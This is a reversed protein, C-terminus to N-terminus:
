GGWAVGPTHVTGAGERNGGYRCTASVRSGDVPHYLKPDFDLRGTPISFEQDWGSWAPKSTSTFTCRMPEPWESDVRLKVWLCGQLDLCQQNDDQTCRPADLDSCYAGPVVTVTPEPPHGSAGFANATDTGREPMAPDSLTFTASLEKFYGLTFTFERTFDDDVPLDVVRTTQGPATVTLRATNGNTSGKVVFTVDQGSAIPTVSALHGPLPGHTRLSRTTSRSCAGSAENENCVMLAVQYTVGNRPVNFAVTQQGGTASINVAPRDDLLLYTTTVKGRSDPVTFSAEARQNQGTPRLSWAGWAAPRGVNTISVGNGTGSTRGELNAARVAYQHAVGDYDVRQDCTLTTVQTCGALPAGNHLVTYTTPGQGEPLTSAWSIRNVTWDDGRQLDVVSVRKPTAPTGLPWFPASQRFDGSGAANRAVVSFQYSRNNDLNSVVAGAVGPTSMQGGPWVVQYQTIASTATTPPDWKLEILRSDRRVMRINSVRGPRSDVSLSVSRESWSSWGVRNRARVQFVYRSGDPELGGFTCTTSACRRTRGSGIERLEYGTLPSGNSAPPSWRLTVARGSISPTGLPRSPTDPTGGVTVEVLGEVRRASTTSDAVDSVVYRFVSRGNSSRGSTFTLTGTGVGSARVSSGSVRTVQVLTPVPDPVGARLHAALNFSRTTGPRMEPVEIPLLGPSPARVARIRLLGPDSGDASVSLVAEGDASSPAAVELVQGDNRTVDLGPANSDWTGRYALRQADGPVPTFTHCLATVDIQVSAGAAVDIPEEPCSLTPRARGVQVPVSVVTSAGPAGSADPASVEALLAGPGEYGDRASIKVSTESDAAAQADVQGRPSAWIRTSDPVQVEGGSPSTVHDRLDVTRTQGTRLRVLADAGVRPLGAGTAPVYLSATTVAGDADRVEFPVVRPHTARDVVVRSGEVVARGDPDLVRTVQLDETRGDPDWAGALVDVAVRESDDSAGFADEVVPPLAAGETARVELTALTSDIGNGLRYVVTAPPADPSDPAPVSVLGTEEDLTVGRPADVLEVRVRDGPTVHDNAMPNVRVTRGPAVEVSDNVALPPQPSPAPAVVVRVTATSSAGRDDTVQVRFTDTGASGPYAQYVITNAGFQVVRGLAPASDLATISVGDGDPDVGAGPLRLEVQAGAPTRGEVTPAHPPNNPEDAPVVEVLLRGTARQGATNVATYPVQHTERQTVDTPGVYRVTRGVVFASGASGSADDPREVPLEGARLAPAPGEADSGEGAPEVVLDLTDGSPSFDNDLVSATVSDGARVQVRDVATVPANDAPTPRQSVQVQGTASSVGNSVVYEVFQTAPLLDGQRVRVRLWRGEVIALDLQDAREATARQVMMLGGAPDSDNALVDVMTPAQGFVTVQDPMAVPTTGRDRPGRVDVRITGRAFEALGYKADYSLFHTGPQAATVTVTGRQLDTVVDTGDPAAVEGGLQLVADPTIPDFGPMDNALPSIEIPRGAEGTVVDPNALAPSADRADAPMVHFTATHSTRRVGDTVAYRVKATGATGGGEFRIRGASTAGVRIGDGGNLLTVQDLSLPDSDKPDRWDGLVPVELTGHSAVQWTREEHLARLEPAGGSAPEVTIDGAVPKNDGDSVYYKFTTRPVPGPPVVLQLTQGDPSITVVAGPIAPTNVSSIALLKGKVTSDNDLPYLTSTRGARVGYTDPQTRPPRTRRAPNDADKDDDDNKKVRDSTWADWNDIRVPTDDDVDWTAGTGRDNLAVLGRNVRFVLSGPAGGLSGPAVAPDSGCVRAVQGTDGSWAGYACGGALVPAVATGRAGTVREQVTGDALDVQLLGTSTGVLVSDSEPGPQQLVGGVPVRWQQGTLTSLGGTREDLLVVTEGVSTIQTPSGTGAPLARTTAAGLGGTGAPLRVARREAASVAVVDGSATITALAGAGVEANPENTSTLMSVPPPSGPAVRGAWLRGAQPDLSAVSGGHALVVAGAPVSVGEDKTVDATDVLAARGARTDLALVTSGDQTLDIEAHPDGTLFGDLQGIPKNMRGFYGREANTVWVGGDNLEPQLTDYGDSRIAYVVVASAALALATNGAVAAKHRRLWTSFRM